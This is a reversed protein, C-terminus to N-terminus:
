KEVEKLKAEIVMRKDNMNLRAYIQKLAYLTPIDDPKLERAKELYPIANNWMAEYKEKEKAYENAQNIPDMADAAKFISVGNNYYLSGLNYIADFYKPDLRIANKYATESKKFDVSDLLDGMVRYISPNLSDQVIADELNKMAKAEEKMALYINTETILLNFDSKFLNRGDSVIRKAMELDGMEKYITALSAYVKPKKYNLTLLKSFYKVATNNDGIAQAITGTVFICNTDVVGISENIKMSTEFYSIASMFDNKDQSQEGALALVRGKNFYIDGVASLRANLEESDKKKTDLNLAKTYSNYAEQLPDSSLKQIEPDKSLAIAYYVDGRYKWTKSVNMTSEFVSAKDIAIKAKEIKGNRLYNNANQVEKDQASAMIVLGAILVFPLLIKKM